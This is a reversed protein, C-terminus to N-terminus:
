FPQTGIQTYPDRSGTFSADGLCSLCIMGRMNTAHAQKTRGSVDNGEQPFELPCGIDGTREDVLSSSRGVCRVPRLEGNWRCGAFPVPMRFFPIGKVTTVDAHPQSSIARETRM